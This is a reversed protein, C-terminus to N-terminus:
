RAWLSEASCCERSFTMMTGMWISSSFLFPSGEASGGDSIEFVSSGWGGSGSMCFIFELTASSLLKAGSALSTTASFSCGVRLSSASTMFCTNSIRWSEVIAEFVPLSLRDRKQPTYLRTASSCSPSNRSRYVPSMSMTKTKEPRKEATLVPKMTAISDLRLGSGLSVVFARRACSTYIPRPLRVAAPEVGTSGADVHNGVAGVRHIWVIAYALKDM